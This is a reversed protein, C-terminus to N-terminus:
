EFGVLKGLDVEPGEGDLDEQPTLEGGLVVELQALAVGEEERVLCVVVQTGRPPSVAAQRGAAM